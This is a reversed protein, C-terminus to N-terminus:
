LQIDERPSWSQQNSGLCKRRFRFLNDSGPVQKGKARTTSPAPAGLLPLPPLCITVATGIPIPADFLRIVAASARRAWIM